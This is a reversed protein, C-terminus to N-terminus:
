NKRVAARLDRPFLWHAIDGTGEGVDRWDDVSLQLQLYGATPLNDLAARGVLLNCLDTLAPNHGVLLCSAFANDFQRLWALLDRCDFSYLAPDIRHPQAALAPFGECIGELTLRARRASSCFAPQPPLLGRECLAAGMAPADRRGRDNLDREHDSLGPEQWSSKAHRLLHLTKL